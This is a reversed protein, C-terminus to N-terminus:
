ASMRKDEELQSRVHGVVQKIVEKLHERNKVTYWDGSRMKKLHAVESELRQVAQELLSLRRRLNM